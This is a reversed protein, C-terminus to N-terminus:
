QHHPPINNRLWRDRDADDDPSDTDREDPAIDPLAEGFIKNVAHRSSKNVEPMAIVGEHRLECKLDPSRCAGTLRSKVLMFPSLWM